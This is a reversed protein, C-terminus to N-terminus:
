RLEQKEIKAARLGVCILLSSLMAIINRFKDKMEWSWFKNIKYLLLPKLWKEFKRVPPFIMALIWMFVGHFAYCYILLSACLVFTANCVSSLLVSSVNFM